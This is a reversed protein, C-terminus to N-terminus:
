NPLQKKEEFILSICTLKSKYVKFPLVFVSPLNYMKSRDALTKVIIKNKKREYKGRYQIKQLYKCLIRNAHM